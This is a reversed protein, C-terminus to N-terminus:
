WHLHLHLPTRSDGHRLRDSGMSWERLGWTGGRLGWKGGFVRGGHGVRHYIIMDGSGGQPFGVWIWRETRM